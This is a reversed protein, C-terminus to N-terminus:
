NRHAPLSREAAQYEADTDDDPLDCCAQQVYKQFVYLREERTGLCGPHPSVTLGRQQDGFISADETQIKPNVRRGHLGVGWALLRAFVGQNRGRLSFYWILTRSTTPSVPLYVQAHVLLDTVTFVVNPHVLHHTYFNTVDGGLRRVVREQLRAVKPQDLTLDYQLTSFRENLDHTQSEESPYIDKLTKPHVCPLHYTELTNEVPIKWNCDFQQDWHWIMRWNNAFMGDFVDYFAGLHERLTPGSEALSVFIVDGCTDVRFKKLRANERDFPRFCGADPIRGTNGSKNYEWGHYQCRLTPSNGREEHTLMCHRHSCTNLFVHVEGDFNRIQLPYGLLEVTVFDGSNPIDSRVAVMHWGPLFLREMEKDHQEQSFYSEPPLLYELQHKHVFM